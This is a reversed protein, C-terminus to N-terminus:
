MLAVNCRPVCHKGSLLAQKSFEAVLHELQANRKEMSIRVNQMSGVQKELQKIYQEQAKCRVAKRELTANTEILRRGDVVDQPWLAGGHEQQDRSHLASILQDRVRLVNEQETMVKDRQALEQRCHSLEQELRENHTALQAFMEKLEDLEERTTQGPRLSLYHQLEADTEALQQSRSELQEMVRKLETRLQSIDSSSRESLEDLQSKLRDREARIENLESDARTMEM